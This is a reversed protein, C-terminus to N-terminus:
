QLYDMPDVWTLNPAHDVYQDLLYKHGSGYIVLVRDGPLAEASINAFIHLNRGWWQTMNDAGARNDAHGMQALLLYLHHFEVEQPGNLTQFRELISHSPDDAEAMYAQIPAVFQNFDEVIDPRGAEQAAALMADFDMGGSYDIAYLQDHGLRAALAWGIQQRENVGLEREGAAFERYRANFSDEYEPGLEVLIKNPAFAELRTLVSDIEAQRQEDMINIAEGNIYDAGGGTFHFSGLVLIEPAPLEAEQSLAPLSFALSGILTAITRIM